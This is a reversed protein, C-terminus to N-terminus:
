PTINENKSPGQSAIYNQRLTKTTHLKQHSIGKTNVAKITFHVQINDNRHSPRQLTANWITYHRQLKSKNDERLQKYQPIM